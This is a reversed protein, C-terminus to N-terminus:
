PRPSTTNWSSSKKASRERASAMARPKELSLPLAPQCTAAYAESTTSAPSSVRRSKASLPQRLTWTRMGGLTTGWPGSM